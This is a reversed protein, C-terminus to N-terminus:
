QTFVSITGNSPVPYRPTALYVGLAAAGLVVVAAPVVIAAIWAKKFPKKKPPTAAVLDAPAPTPKAVVPPATEPSLVVDLRVTERPNVTVPKSVAGFGLKRLFVLHSGMGVSANRYPTVGVPASADDDLRVEAGPPTSEVILTGALEHKCRDRAAIAEVTRPDGAPVRALFLELEGIADTCRGMRADTLGLWRYPNPKDPVLDRAREFDTRAATFDGQTFKAIGEDLLLLAESAADARAVAPALLPLVAAV